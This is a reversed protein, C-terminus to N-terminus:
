LQKRGEGPKTDAKPALDSFGLKALDDQKMLGSSVVGNSM